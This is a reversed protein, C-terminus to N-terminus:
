LLAMIVQMGERGAIMMVLLLLLCLEGKKQSDWLVTEIYKYIETM